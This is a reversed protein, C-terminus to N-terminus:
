RRLTDSGARSQGAEFAAIGASHMRGERTLEAVKAINVASWASKPKRPTFRNSYSIDDIRQRVSDIWGFCLAEDVAQSWDLGPRGTAKKHFGVVVETADDHHQELWKRWAAPTEFFLPAV